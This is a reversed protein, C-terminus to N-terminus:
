PHKTIYENSKSSKLAEEQVIISNKTLTRQILAGDLFNFASLLAPQFPEGFHSLFQSKKNRPRRLKKM